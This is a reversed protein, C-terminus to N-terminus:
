IKFKSIVQELKDVISNLREATGSINSMARSQEDMSAAIEESAAASQQSIASIEQISSIVDNKDKDVKEINEILLEIQELTNQVSEAILTFAKNSESVALNAENVADEGADMNGKATNIELQIQSVINEIEKTSNSTQESLKRIEDAVVAFGKGAEGARAAEIAANLALLNTQEAIAEITSVIEGIYDSKSSLSDINTALMDIVEKNITFKDVLKEMSTTGLDNAHKVENSFEKVKNSSTVSINIENALGELKESGVQSSKAQEQAGKALEEITKSVSDISATTEETSKTLSESYEMVEKSNDKLTQVISILEKKLNLVAKGMVGTEDNNESIKEFKSDNDNSLDLEAVTNILETSDMIPTSIKRGIYLAFLSAIVIGAAIVILIITKLSNIPKFVEKVPASMVLVWGNSLKSYSLVNEGNSSDFHNVGSPSKKIDDSLSKYSGNNVYSLNDTPKFSKHVIFDHKSNVLGAYGSNYVKINNISNRYKKFNIDIGVVGILVDGKFIPTTYSIMEMKLETNTFPNSWIGKKQKIPEYYWSLNANDQRFESKATLAHETFEGSGSVDVYWAGHVDGTIDPNLLIYEGMVDKQSKVLNSVLPKLMAEYEAANDKLNEPLVITEVAASLDQAANQVSIITKDLERAKAQAMSLMKDSSEKELISGSRTIVLGGIVSSLITCCIIIATIIKSSIKKM